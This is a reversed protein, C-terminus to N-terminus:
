FRGIFTAGLLPAPDSDEERLLRGSADEIRLQGNLVVGAFLHLAAQNTFRHTVRLFLPMGSEEGIGNPTPGTESLRFRLSRWAAGIGASWRDDFQHDLELGAPGTPGSALPNTLRWRDGLRWDVAVFPFVLTEEIRDFLALGLGLVNGNAFRRSASFTAGWTFSDASDAGQERFWEFSPTAGLVWGSELALLVPASVGYRQV